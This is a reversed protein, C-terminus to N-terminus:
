LIHEELSEKMLLEDNRKILNGERLLGNIHDMLELSCVPCKTSSELCCEICTAHFMHFCFLSLVTDGKRMDDFCIPCERPESDYTSRVM